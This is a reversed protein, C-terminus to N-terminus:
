SAWRSSPVSSNGINPAGFLPWTRARLQAAADTSTFSASTRQWHGAGTGIDIYLAREDWVAQSPNGPLAERPHMAMARPAPMPVPSVVVCPMIHMVMHMAM